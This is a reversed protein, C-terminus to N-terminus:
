AAAGRGAVGHSVDDEADFRRAIFGRRGDQYL